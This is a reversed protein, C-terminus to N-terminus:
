PKLDRHIIAHEHAYQVAECVARFLQIRRDASCNHTRCYETLTLGEVYEMVFWPTGDAFTNADYLHAICPHNLQALVKRESEFRERRSPHLWADRLIKIAVQNGLDEREALYVIGMGGQGLLRRVQYPGFSRSTVPDSFLDEAVKAIDGDLVSTDSILMAEVDKRLAADDGCASRLYEEREGSPLDVVEHFIGQVREWQEPNM